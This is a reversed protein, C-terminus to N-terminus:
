AFFYVCRQKIILKARVGVLTLKCHNVFISTPKQAVNYAANSKTSMGRPRSVGLRELLADFRARDEAVDISEASTGLIAVGHGDLFKTLKIATQGGFAVVVGVPKEVRVINMVDEPCLPEFYLRDATDYDTSVTEPNNNVIVVDYGMGLDLAAVEFACRTRTSTKEFILAINRGEHLKHPIGAKKKAKLLAATDLLGAIEDPSFDLLKLFDRGQLNM